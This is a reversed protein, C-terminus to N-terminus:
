MLLTKDFRTPGFPRDLPLNFSDLQVVDYIYYTLPFAHMRAEFYLSWYSVM